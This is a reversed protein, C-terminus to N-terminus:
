SIVGLLKDHPVLIYEDGDLKLEQGGYNQYAIIEGTELIGSDWGADKLSEGVSVVEGVSPREKADDALVLNGTDEKLEHKKLVVYGPLPRVTKGM